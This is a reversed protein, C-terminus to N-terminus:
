LLHCKTSIFFLTNNFSEIFLFIFLNINFVNYTNLSLLYTVFLYDYIILLTIRKLACHLLNLYQKIQLSKNSINILITISFVLGAFSGVSLVTQRGFLLNFPSVRAGQKPGCM